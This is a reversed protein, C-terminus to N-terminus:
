LSLKYKGVSSCGLATVGLTPCVNSLLHLNFKIDNLPLIILYKFIHKNFFGEMFM